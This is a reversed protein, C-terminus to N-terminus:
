LSGLGALPRPKGLKACNRGSAKASYVAADAVQQLCTANDGHDPYLAIGISCGVSLRHEGQTVPESVGQIIKEAKALADEANHLAPLVIVFEDGGIRAVTDSARVMATMRQALTQLLADGAAHGYTDNIPKFRDLDVFLLAVKHQERHASRLAQTLRDELLARNPLGTLTDSHAQSWLLQNAAQLEANKLEDVIGFLFLRRVTFTNYWSIVLSFVLISLHVSSYIFFLILDGQSLLWVGSFVLLTLTASGMLATSFRATIGINMWMSFIVAAFAYVPVEESGSLSLIYLWLAAAIHVYLAGLSELTYVNSRKRVLWFTLGLVTGVFLSRLGLSTGIVDRVVVFDGLAFLSYGLAGIVIVAYIYPRTKTDVYNAFRGKLAEPVPAGRQALAETAVIRLDNNAHVTKNGPSPPSTPKM